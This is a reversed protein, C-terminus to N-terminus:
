IEEAMRYYMEVTNPNTPVFATKLKIETGIQIFCVKLRLGCDTESIFWNTPPDSKHEERSDILFGHTRNYFCEYIQEETIDHKTKIKQLVSPSVTLNM